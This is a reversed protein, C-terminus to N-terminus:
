HDGPRGINKLPEVDLNLAKIGALFQSRADREVTCLPHAKAQNFRDNVMMGEAAIVKQCESMREFAEFATKLILLGANDEIQFEDRIKEAWFRAEESLNDFLNDNMGM